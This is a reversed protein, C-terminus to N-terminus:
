GDYVRRGDGPLLTLSKPNIQRGVTIEVDGSWDEVSLVQGNASSYDFYRCQQPQRNTTTSLRTMRATGSEELQYVTDAVTIQSPPSASIEVGKVPELWCVEVRDDEEVSLWRIQDVDQLLYESWTYGQSDYTLHDEVVWDSGEYQVIDGIQLTFITRQLSPLPQRASGPILPKGQGQRIVLLVAVLAIAIIGIWVLSLM